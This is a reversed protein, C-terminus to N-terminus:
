EVWTVPNGKIEREGRVPSGEEGYGLILGGTVTEEPSLGLTELYKRVSSNDDMWHLPNIWCAGLDLENAAIMMNELACASDAIANPYTKQNATVILVPANYHFVYKGTKAATISGKMTAYMDDQIEMEAFANKVIVALEELVEPNTIVIFHTLQSNSGSPALRGAEIVQEILRRDPIEKKMRRTSRRTKIAELTNM